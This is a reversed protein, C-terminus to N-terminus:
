SVVSKEALTKYQAESMNAIKVSSFVNGTVGDVALETMSTENSYAYVYRKYNINDIVTTDETYFVWGSGATPKLMPVTGIWPTDFEIFLYIGTNSENRVTANYNLTQSGYPVLINENYNERLEIMVEESPIVHSVHKFDGLYASMSLVMCVPLFLMIFMAMTHRINRIAVKM